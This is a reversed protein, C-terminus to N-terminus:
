LYYVYAMGYSVVRMLIMLVFYSFLPALDIPLRGGSLKYALPRFPAILPETIRLLFAYIPVDPRLFWSLVARIVICWSAAQLVWYVGRLVQYLITGIM